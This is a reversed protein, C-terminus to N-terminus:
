REKKREVVDGWQYTGELGEQKVVGLSVIAALAGLGGGMSLLIVSLWSAFVIVVVSRSSLWWTPGGRCSWSPRRCRSSSWSQRCDRRVVTVMVTLLENCAPSRVTRCARASNIRSCCVVVCVSVFVKFV